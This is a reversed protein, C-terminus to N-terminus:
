TVTTRIAVSAAPGVVAMDPGHLVVYGLAKLWGLAAGEILSGYFGVM